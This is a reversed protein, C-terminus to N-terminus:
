IQCLSCSAAPQPMLRHDCLLLSEASDSNKFKMKKIIDIYIIM